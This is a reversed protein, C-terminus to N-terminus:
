KKNESEIGYLHRYVALHINPMINVVMFFIGLLFWFTFDLDYYVISGLKSILAIILFLFGLFTCTASWM